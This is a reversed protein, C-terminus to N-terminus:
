RFRTRIRHVWSKLSMERLSAGFIRLCERSYLLRARFRGHKPLWHERYLEELDGAVYGDTLLLFLLNTTTPPKPGGAPPHKRSYDRLLDINFGLYLSGFSFVGTAALLFLPILLWPSWTELNTFSYLTAAFAFLYVGFRIRSM